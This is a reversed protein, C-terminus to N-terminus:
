VRALLLIADGLDMLFIDGDDDDLGGATPCVRLILALAWVQNAVAVLSRAIRLKLIGFPSRIWGDIRDENAVFKPETKSYGLCQPSRVSTSIAIM